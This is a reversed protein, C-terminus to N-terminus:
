YAFGEGHHSMGLVQGGSQPNAQAKGAPQNNGSSKLANRVITEVLNGFVQLPSVLRGLANSVNNAERAMAATNKLQEAQEAVLRAGIDSATKALRDANPTMNKQTDHSMAREQEPTLALGKEKAIRAEERLRAGSDGGLFDDYLKRNQPSMAFFEGPTPGKGGHSGAVAMVGIRQMMETPGAFLADRNWNRQAERKNQELLYPIEEVRRGENVRNQYQQKRLEQLETAQVDTPNAIGQLEGIRKNLGYATSEMQGLPTHGILGLEGAFGSAREATIHRNDMLTTMEEMPGGARMSYLPGRVEQQQDMLEKNVAMMTASDGQPVHHIAFNLSADQASLAARQSIFAGGEGISATEQTVKVIGELLEKRERLFDLVQQRKVDLSERTEVDDPSLMELPNPGNKKRDESVLRQHELEDDHEKAGAHLLNFRKKGDFLDFIMNWGEEIKGVGGIAHPGAIGGLVAGPVGGFRMGLMAGGLTSAYPNTLASQALNGGLKLTEGFTDAASPGFRQSTASGYFSSVVQSKVSQIVMGLSKMMRDQAKQGAMPDMTSRRALDEAEPYGELAAGLQSGSRLGAIRSLVQRRTDSNMGQYAKQFNGWYQSLNNNKTPMVGFGELMERVEKRDLEQFVNKLVNGTVSGTVGGRKTAVAVTGMLEALGMGPKGTDDKRSAVAASKAIGELLDGQTTGSRASTTTLMSVVGRMDSAGLGYNAMIDRLYAQAELQPVQGTNSLISTQKTAEIVQARSMGLRAWATSTSMASQTDVGTAASLQLIDKALDKSSGGVGRFVNELRSFQTDVEVIKKALGELAQETQVIPYVASAWAGVTAVNKLYQKPAFGAAWNRRGIGFPVVGGGRSGPGGGMTIPGPIGMTIPPPINATGGSFLTQYFRQQQAHPMQPRPGMTANIFQQLNLPTGMLASVRGAALQASAQAGSRLAAAQAGLIQSQGALKTQPGTIGMAQLAANLEPSILGPLSSAAQEKLAAMGLVNGSGIGASAAKFSAAHEAIRTRLDTMMPSSRKIKLRSRVENGLEDYTKALTTGLEEMEVITTRTANESQSITRELEKETGPPNYPAGVGKGSKGRRGGGGGGSGASAGTFKGTGPDRGGSGGGSVTGVVSASIQSAPIELTIQGVVKAAASAFNVEGVTPTTGGSGAGKVLNRLLNRSMRQDAMRSKEYEELFQGASRPNKLTQASASTFFSAKEAQRLQESLRRYAGSERGTPTLRTAEQMKREIAQMQKRAETELKSGYNRLSEPTMGFLKAMEDTSQTGSTKIQSTFQAATRSFKDGTSVKSTLSDITRLYNEIKELREITLDLGSLEPKRSVAEILIKQTLDELAAM